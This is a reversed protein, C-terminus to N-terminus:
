SWLAVHFSCNNLAGFMVYSVHLIEGVFAQAAPWFNIIDQKHAKGIGDYKVATGPDNRFKKLAFM